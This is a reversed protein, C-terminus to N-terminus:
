GLDKIVANIFALAEPLTEMGHGVNPHIKVEKLHDGMWLNANKESKQAPFLPDHDGLLLYTDTAIKGLQDKIYYPKQTRDRYRTIAFQQYDLLLQFGETSLTHHPPCFVAGNLFKSINTTTPRILPLLNLYLNRWSLSFPQLHGPCLWFLAKIRHPSVLALKASVLGGFSAGAVYIQDLGLADIIESAWRGYGMGKIDPTAGDSLNPLGNTEVLYVTTPHQLQKLNADLDWVLATTRAGPFVVLTNSPNPGSDWRYIQTKGLSTDIQLSEYTHGNAQELRHVWAEFWAKDESPSKFGSQRKIEM